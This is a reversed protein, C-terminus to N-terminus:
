FSNSEPARNKWFRFILFTVLSFTAVLLAWLLFATKLGFSYSLFGFIMPGTSHGLDGVSAVIGLARGRCCPPASRLTMAMVNPYVTGLGAGVSVASILLMTTSSTLSLGAFGLAFSLFAPLIISPKGWVPIKMGIYARLSVALISIVTFFLGTRIDPHIKKLLPTFSFSASVCWGFLFNWSAFLPLPFSFHFDDKEEKKRPTERIFFLAPLSSACLFAAFLFMAPFGWTRWIQEALFPFLMYPFLYFVALRTVNRTFREQRSGEVSQLLSGLGFWSFGVGNLIRLFVIIVISDKILAFGITSLLFFSSGAILLKKPSYLDSIKGGLTRFLLSTWSFLSVVIGIVADDFGLNKLFLSLYVFVSLAGYLFFTSTSILLLNRKEERVSYYKLRRSSSTSPPETLSSFEALVVRTDPNYQWSEFPRKNELIFVFYLWFAKM